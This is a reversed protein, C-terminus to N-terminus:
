PDHPDPLGTLEAPALGTVEVVAVCSPAHACHALLGLDLGSRLGLSTIGSGYVCGFGILSGRALDLPVERLFGLFILSSSHYRRICRIPM